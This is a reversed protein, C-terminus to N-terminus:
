MDEKSFHRNPDEAIKEKKKMSFQMLHKYIKSILGKDAADDAISEGMRYITKKNQQHNGKSHLLKHTQNPGM